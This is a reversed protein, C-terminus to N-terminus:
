WNKIANKMSNLYFQFVPVLRIKLLYKFIRTKSNPKIVQLDLARIGKHNENAIM